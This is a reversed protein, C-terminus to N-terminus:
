LTQTADTVGMARNRHIESLSVKEGKVMYFWGFSDHRIRRYPNGITFPTENGAGKGIVPRYEIQM